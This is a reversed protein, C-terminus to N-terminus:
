RKGTGACRDVGIPFSTNPACNADDRKLLRSLFLSDILRRERADVRTNTVQQRGSELLGSRAVIDTYESMAQPRDHCELKRAAQDGGARTWLSQEDTPRGPRERRAGLASAPETIRLEQFANGSKGAVFM